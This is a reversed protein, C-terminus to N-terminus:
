INTKRHKVKFGLTWYIYERTGDHLIHINVNDFTTRTASKTTCGCVNYKTTQTCEDFNLIIIIDNSSVTEGDNYWGIGWDGM